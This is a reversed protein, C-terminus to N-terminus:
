VCCWSEPTNAQRIGDYTQSTWTERSSFPPRKKQAFHSKRTQRPPMGIDRAFDVEHGFGVLLAVASRPLNADILFRM